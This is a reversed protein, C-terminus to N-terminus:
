KRLIKGVARYAYRNRVRRALPRPNGQSLRVGARGWASLRALSYLFSVFANM